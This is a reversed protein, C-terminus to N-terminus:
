HVAHNAEESVCSHAHGTRARCPRTEFGGRRPAVDTQQPGYEYATTQASAGKVADEDLRIRPPLPEGPKTVTVKYEDTQQM